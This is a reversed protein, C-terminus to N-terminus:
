TRRQTGNRKYRAGLAALALALAWAGDGGSANCGGGRVVGISGDGGADFSADAGADPVPLPGACAGGGCIWGADGPDTCDAALHCPNAATKCGDSSVCQYDGSSTTAVCTFGTGCDDGLM